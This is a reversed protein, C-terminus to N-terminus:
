WFFKEKNQYKFSSSNNVQNVPPILLFYFLESQQDYTTNHTVEVTKLISICPIRSM